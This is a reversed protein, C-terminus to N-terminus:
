MLREIYEKATKLDAGTQERYYKIAELKRDSFNDLIKSSDVELPANCNTCQAAILKTTSNNMLNDSGQKEGCQLCFKANDPLETGCNMCFM